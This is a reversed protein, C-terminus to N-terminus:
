DAATQFSSKFHGFAAVGSGPLSLAEAGGTNPTM